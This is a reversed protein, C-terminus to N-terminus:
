QVRWPTWNIAAAGHCSAAARLHWGARLWRTIRRNYVCYYRQKRLTGCAKHVARRGVRRRRCHVHFQAPMRQQPVILVFPHTGLSDQVLNATATFTSSNGFHNKVLYSREYSHSHGNILVDLGAAELLPLANRRLEVSATEVDSDHSGKSYAPHHWMAILWKTNAPDIAALDARLWNMMAGTAGRPSYETLCVFVCARAQVFIYLQTIASNIVLTLLSSTCCAMISRTIRRQAVPLAAQKVLALRSSVHSICVLKVMRSCVYARM